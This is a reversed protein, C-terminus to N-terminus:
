EAGACSRASDTGGVTWVSEDAVLELVWEYRPHVWDLRERNADIWAAPDGCRRWQRAVDTEEIGYEDFEFARVTRALPAFYIALTADDALAILEEELDRRLLYTVMEDIHNGQHHEVLEDFLQYRLDWRATEDTSQSPPPSIPGDSKTAM